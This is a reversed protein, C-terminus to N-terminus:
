SFFFKQAAQKLFIEGHEDLTIYHHIDKSSLSANSFIRKGEYRQQQLGWARQVNARLMGSTIGEAKEFLADVHERPIELMM